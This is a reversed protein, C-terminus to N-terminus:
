NAQAHLADCRAACIFDNDSIGNVSHTNWRVLCHRSTLTLEPHHDEAQAMWALANVFGLTAAYDRLEFRREIANDRHGWAPLVTLQAAIEAPRYAGQTLPRCRTALLQELTLIPKM